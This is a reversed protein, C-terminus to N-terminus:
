YVVRGAAARRLRDQIAVGLGDDAAFARVLIRTVGAADLERFAAYLRTAIAPLDHESGLYRLEVLRMNASGLSELAYWDEEAAIIGVSEGAALAAAADKVLRQLAENADGEYLTLPTRPSYHKPLLGPSRAATGDAQSASKMAVDPVIERLM